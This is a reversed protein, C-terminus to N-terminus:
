NGTSSDSETKKLEEAVEAITEKGIGSAKLVQTGLRTIVGISHDALQRADEESFLLEGNSDCASLSVLLSMLEISAAPTMDASGNKLQEIRENYHLLQRASLERLYLSGDLEPVEVLERRLHNGSLFDDRTLIKPKITTAM